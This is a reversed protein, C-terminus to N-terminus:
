RVTVSGPLPEVGARVWVDLPADGPIPSQVHQYTRRFEPHEFLTREWPNIFLTGTGPMRVANGLLVFDPQHGLVAAADYRHHGKMEISPDPTAAATEGSTIGLIDVIPLGSHYGFAGVPSLAVTSTTPVKDHFYRGLRAWREVFFSQEGFLDPRMTQPWQLVAAALATAAALTWGFRSGPDHDAASAPAGAASRGLLEAAGRCGLWALCPLVPVVFRGLPMFDGGSYVVFALFAGAGAWATRFAPDPRRLGLAGLALLVLAGSELTSQWVYRAGYALDMGLPLRKVHFTAPLLEGYLVLRLGLWALVAAIPLAATRLRRNSLERLVFPLAFVLAEQRTLCALGLAVAAGLPPREATRARADFFVAASLCVGLFATEM